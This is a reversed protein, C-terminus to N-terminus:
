GGELWEKEVEVSNVVKCQLEEDTHPAITTSSASIKDPDGRQHSALINSLRKERAERHLSVSAESDLNAEPAFVFPWPVFDLVVEEFAFVSGNTISL